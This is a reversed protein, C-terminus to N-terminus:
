KAGGVTLKRAAQKVAQVLHPLDSATYGAPSPTGEELRVCLRHACRAAREAEFLDLRLDSLNAPLVPTAPTRLPIINCRQM